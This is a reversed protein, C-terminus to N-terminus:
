YLRLEYGHMNPLYFVLIFLIKLAVLALSTGALGKVMHVSLPIPAPSKLVELACMTLFALNLDGIM